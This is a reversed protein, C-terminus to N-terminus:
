AKRVNFMRRMYFDILLGLITLLIIDRIGLQRLSGLALLAVAWVSILFSRRLADVLAEQGRHQGFKYLGLTLGSAMAILLGLFWLTIGFPGLQSPSTVFLSIVLVAAIAVSARQMWFIIRELMSTLIGTILYNAPSM